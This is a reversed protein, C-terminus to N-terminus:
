RIAQLQPPGDATPNDALANADALLEPLQRPYVAQGAAELEAIDTADCWRHCHIYRRELETRGASTPEFRRTRHVFFFEESDITAGNFELVKDRRWIPGIMATPAVRLGTEEALERAAAEALREGPGVEGGVTFWWRPADDIAPDSGCLLLVAGGEDLLVVRASTRHTPVGHSTYALALPREVIEFYSPLTATGGLRLARVPRREALALTDRVADNHFRRALLLRAESDTLEAILGAPVAAPDVTALAASLENEANERASRPAQEAADALASLRQGEPSGGYADIAIARAIVARRALAGDLAQWSLDYRVNLRDLRNATRIAWIGTLALVILLVVIVALLWAM